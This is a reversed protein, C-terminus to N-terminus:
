QLAVGATSAQAACPSRAVERTGLCPRAVHRGGRRLADHRWRGRRSWPGRKRGLADARGTMVADVHSRLGEGGQRWKRAIGPVAGVLTQDMCRPPPRPISEGLRRRARVKARAGEAHTRLAGGLGGTGRAPGVLAGPLVARTHRPGLRYEALAQSRTEGECPSRRGGGSADELGPTEERSDLFRTKSNCQGTKEGNAAIGTGSRIRNRVPM